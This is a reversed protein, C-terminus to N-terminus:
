RNYFPDSFVHIISVDHRSLPLRFPLRPCTLHHSPSLIHNSPSPYPPSLLPVPLLDRNDLLRVIPDSCSPTPFVSLSFFIRCKNTLPCRPTMGWSVFVQSTRFLPRENSLREQFKCLPILSPIHAFMFCFAPRNPSTRHGSWCHFILRSFLLYQYLGVGHM